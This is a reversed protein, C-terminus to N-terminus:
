PDLSLRSYFCMPICHKLCELAMRGRDPRHGEGGVALLDHRSRVIVRYPEPVSRSSGQLLRELAM